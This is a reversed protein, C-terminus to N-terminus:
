DLSPRSTLTKMFGIYAELLEKFGHRSALLTTLVLGNEKVLRSCNNVNM